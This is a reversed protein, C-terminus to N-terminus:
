MAWRPKGEERVGPCPKGLAEEEGALELRWGGVIRYCLALALGRSGVKVL